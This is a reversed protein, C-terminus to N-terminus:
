QDLLTFHRNCCLASPMAPSGPIGRLQCNFSDYSQYAWMTHMGDANCESLSLNERSAQCRMEFIWVIKIETTDCFLTVCCLVSRCTTTTVVLASLAGAVSLLEIECFRNCLINPPSNLSPTLQLCGCVTELLAYHQPASREETAM